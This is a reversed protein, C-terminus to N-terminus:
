QKGCEELWDWSQPLHALITNGFNCKDRSM